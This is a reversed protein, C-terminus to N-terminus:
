LFLAIMLKPERFVAKFDWSAHSSRNRIGPCAAGGFASDKRPAIYPANPMRTVQGQAADDISISNHDLLSGTARDLEIRSKEYAVTANVLTSEATAM